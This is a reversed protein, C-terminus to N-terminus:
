RRAKKFRKAKLYKREWALRMRVGVPALLRATSEQSTDPGAPFVSARVQPTTVLFRVLTSLGSFTIEGFKGRQEIPGFYFTKAGSMAYVDRLLTLTAHRKESDSQYNGAEHLPTGPPVDQQSPFFLVKSEGLITIADALVDANDSCVLVPLSKEARKVRGLMAVHDTTYDTARIHVAAYHEPLDSVMDRIETMVDSRLRIHRLVVHSKRGGGRQHHVVLDAQVDPPPLRVARSEPDGVMEFRQPYPTDFFESVRGELSAPSVSMQNWRAVEATPFGITVPITDDVFEFFDDFPALIGSETTDLFLHRGTHEAFHLARQIQCLTDNLGGLPKSVVVQTYDPIASM